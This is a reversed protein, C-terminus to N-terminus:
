RLDVETELELFTMGTLGAAEITARLDERVVFTMPHSALRFLDLKPDIRDRDLALWRIALYWGENVPDLDGQTRVPDIADAVELVNIVASDSAAVRGKHNLFTFPLFEIRAFCELRLFDVFRASGLTLELTNDIWDPVLLGSADDSMKFSLDQLIRGVPLGETANILGPEDEDFNDDDDVRCWRPDRDGRVVFYEM